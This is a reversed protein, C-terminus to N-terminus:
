VSGSPSADSALINLMYVTDCSNWSGIFCSEGRLGWM